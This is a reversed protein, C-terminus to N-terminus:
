LYTIAISALAVAYSAFTSVMGVTRFKFNEPMRSVGWAHSARGILLALAGLHLAMDPAGRLEALALLLLALPAQEAFNAHARVRRELAEAGLPGIAVRASRRAMIARGTLVVFLAGLLAAYIPVIALTM